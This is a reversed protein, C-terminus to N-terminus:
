REKGASDPLKWSQLGPYRKKFSLSFKTVEKHFSRSQICLQGTVGGFQDLGQLSGTSSRVADFPGDEVAIPLEGPLDLGEDVM